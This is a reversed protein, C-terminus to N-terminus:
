EQASPASLVGRSAMEGAERMAARVNPARVLLLGVLADHAQGCTFRAQNPEDAVEEMEGLRILGRAITAVRREAGQVDGQPHAEYLGAGLSSIAITGDAKKDFIHLPRPEPDTEPALKCSDLFLRRIAQQHADGCPFRMLGDDTEELGGLAKMAAVVSAIREAASALSSYTHVLYAAITDQRYLSISIDHFHPDM